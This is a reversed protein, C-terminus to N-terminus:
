KLLEEASILVNNEDFAYTVLKLNTGSTSRTSIWRKVNNVPVNGHRLVKLSVKDAGLENELNKTVTEMEHYGYDDVYVVILHDLTLKHVRIQTNTIHVSDTASVVLTLVEDKMETTLPFIVGSKPDIAFNENVNLSYEIQANVGLDADNAKVQILYPPLLLGVLDANPYGISSVSTSPIEFVPKNDNIDEIFLNIQTVDSNFHIEDTFVNDVFDELARKKRQKLLDEKPCVLKLKIQIQAVTM